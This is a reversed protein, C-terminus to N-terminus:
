RGLETAFKPQNRKNTEIETEIGTEKEHDENTQVTSTAGAPIQKRTLRSDAEGIWIMAHLTSDKAFAFAAATRLSRLSRLIRVVLGFASRARWSVIFSASSLFSGTLFSNTLFSETLFVKLCHCHWQSGFVAM